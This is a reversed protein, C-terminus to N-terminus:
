LSHVANVTMRPVDNVARTELPAEQGQQQETTVRQARFEVLALTHSQLARSRHGRASSSDIDTSASM